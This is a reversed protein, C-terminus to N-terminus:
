SLTKSHLEPQGQSEGAEAEQFSPNCAHMVTCQKYYRLKMKTNYYFIHSIFHVM